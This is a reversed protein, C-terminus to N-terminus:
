KLRRGTLTTHVYGLVREKPFIRFRAPNAPLALV